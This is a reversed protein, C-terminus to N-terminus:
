TRLSGCRLGCGSKKDNSRFRALAPCSMVGSIEVKGVDPITLMEDRVVDAVEKLEAYSYGEGTITFIIGFFRYLEILPAGRRPVRQARDVFRETLPVLRDLPGESAPQTRVALRDKRPELLHAWLAEFGPQMLM